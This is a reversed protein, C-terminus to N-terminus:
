VCSTALDLTHMKKELCTDSLARHMGVFKMDGLRDFGDMSRRYTAEDSEQRPFIKAGHMSDTVSDQNSTRCPRKNSSLPSNNEEEQERIRKLPKALAAAACDGHVGAVVDSLSAFSRAKRYFKSLGPRPDRPTVPSHANGDRPASVCRVRLHATQQEMHVLVQEGTETGRGTDRGVWCSPSSSGWCSLLGKM